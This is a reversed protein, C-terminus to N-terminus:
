TMSSCETADTQFDRLKFLDSEIFSVAILFVHQHFLIQAKPPGKSSTLMFVMNETERNQDNEVVSMIDGNIASSCPMFNPLYPM